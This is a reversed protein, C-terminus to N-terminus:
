ETTHKPQNTFFSRLIMNLLFIIMALLETPIAFLSHAKIYELILIGAGIINMWLMTNDLKFGTIFVPKGSFFKQLVVNIVFVVFAATAGPILDITGLYTFMVIFFGLLNVWNIKSKFFSITKM